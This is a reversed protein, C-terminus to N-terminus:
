NKMLSSIEMKTKKIPIETEFNEQCDPTLFEM